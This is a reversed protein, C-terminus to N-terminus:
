VTEIQYAGPEKGLWACIKLFSQESLGKQLEARHVTGKSVGIEVAVEDMSMHNEHRRKTIVALALKDADYKM